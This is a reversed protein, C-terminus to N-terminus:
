ANKGDADMLNIFARGSKNIGFTETSSNYNGIFYNVSIKLTLSLLSGSYRYVNEVM